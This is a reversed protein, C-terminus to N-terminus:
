RYGNNSPDTNLVDPNQSIEILPIPHLVNHAQITAAPFYDRSTIFNLPNLSTLDVGTQRVTEIYVGWRILDNRRVGEFCL